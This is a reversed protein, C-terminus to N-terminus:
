ELTTPRGKNSVAWSSRLWPTSIHANFDEGGTTGALDPDRDDLLTVQHLIRKVAGSRGASHSIEIEAADGRHQRCKPAGENRDVGRGAKQRVLVTGRVLAFAREDRHPHGAARLAALTRPQDRLRVAGLM